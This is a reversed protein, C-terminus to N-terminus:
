GLGKLMAYVSILILSLSLVLTVVRGSTNALNPEVTLHKMHMRKGHTFAWVEYTGLLFVAGTGMLDYANSRISEYHVAHWIAGFYIACVALVFLLGVRKGTKSIGISVHAMPHKYLDPHWKCWLETQCQECKAIYKNYPFKCKPCQAELPDKSLHSPLAIPTGLSLQKRHNRHQELTSESPCGCTECFDTWAVCRTSCAPCTWNYSPMLFRVFQSTVDICALMAQTASM